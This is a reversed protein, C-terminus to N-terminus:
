AMAPTAIQNAIIQSNTFSKIKGNLAYWGFISDSPAQVNLHDHDSMFLGFAAFVTVYKGGNNQSQKKAEQKAQQETKAKMEIM